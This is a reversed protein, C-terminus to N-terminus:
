TYNSEDLLINSSKVDRHYIPPVASSHLYALGVATQRAITLRHRWTLGAAGPRLGRLHDHLTFDPIFEYVMLPQELEVCCGLLRVLGRHNVQSLIRVKNLVQDTSKTNGLKACKVAVPTGDTLVGKFVEGFGGSGLLARQHQERQPDGGERQTAEEEGGPNTTAQPLALVLRHHDPDLSSTWVCGTACTKPSPTRISDPSASAVVSQEEPPRQIPRARQTLGERVTLRLSACRSGRHRGSSNWGQAGGWGSLCRRGPTRSERLETHGRVPPALKPWYPTSSGRWLRAVFPLDGALLPTRPTLSLM